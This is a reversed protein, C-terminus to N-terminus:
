KINLKAKVWEKVIAPHSRYYNDVVDNYGSVGYSKEYKPFDSPLQNVTLRDLFEQTRGMYPDNENVDSKFDKNTNISTANPNTGALVKSQKTQPVSKVTGTKGNQPVAQNQASLISVCGLLGFFYVIKLLKM